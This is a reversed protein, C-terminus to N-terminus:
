LGNAAPLFVNIIASLSLYPIVKGKTDLSEM